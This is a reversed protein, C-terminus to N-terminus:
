RGRRRLWFIAACNEGYLGYHIRHAVPGSRLAPTQCNISQHVRGELVKGDKGTWRRRKLERGHSASVPMRMPWNLNLVNPDIRHGWGALRENPRVEHCTSASVGHVSVKDNDPPRSLAIHGIDVDLAVVSFPVDTVDIEQLGLPPM